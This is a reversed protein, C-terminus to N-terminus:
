ALVISRTDYVTGEKCILSYKKDGGSMEVPCGQCIGIGCAM